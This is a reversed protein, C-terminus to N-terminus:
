RLLEPESKELSTLLKSWDELGEEPPPPSRRALPPGLQPLSRVGAGLLQPWEGRGHSADAIGKVGKTFGKAAQRQFATGKPKKLPPPKSEYSKGEGHVVPYVGQVNTELCLAEFTTHHDFRPGLDDRGHAANCNRGELREVPLTRQGTTEVFGLGVSGRVGLDSQLARLGQVATKGRAIMHEYKPAMDRRHAVCLDAVDANYNLQWRLTSECAHPDSTDHYEIAAPTPDPRSMERDFDNVHTIRRRLFDKATSTDFGVGGPFKKADPHLVAQLAFHGLLGDALERPLAREMSVSPIKGRVASYNVDYKGPAAVDDEALSQRGLTKTFDWAPPRQKPYGKLDQQYMDKAPETIRNFQLQPYRGVRMSNYQDWNPTKALYGETQSRHFGGERWEDEIKEVDIGTLSFTGTPPAPGGPAKPSTPGDKIALPPGAGFDPVRQRDHVMNYQVKYWAPDPRQDSKWGQMQAKLDRRNLAGPSKSATFKSARPRVRLLSFM